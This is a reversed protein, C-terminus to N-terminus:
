SSKLPHKRFILSATSPPSDYCYIAKLSISNNASDISHGATFVAALCPLLGDTAM